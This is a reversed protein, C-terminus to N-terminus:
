GRIEGYIGGQTQAEAGNDGYWTITTAAGEGWENWSLFHRGVGPFGLYSAAQFENTGGSEGRGRLGSFTTTSDVGVGVAADNGSTANVYTVRIWAKVAGESVGQVYDLQNAASANAQRITATNYSWSDTAELAQMPRLVRHYYNWLYRKALSDETQGSVGTTRFSCLYRRTTDGSKIYVGDQKALATARTTDNTWATTDCAVAGSNIRCFLDYITATTSPVTVTIESATLHRWVTGTYLAMRNGSHPTVYVSTAATVDATTVSTGSTLTCRFDQVSPSLPEYALGDAQASDATLVYGDTGAAKRQATAGTSVLLDGKTTLTKFFIAARTNWLLGSSENSDAELLKGDSGVGLRSALGTAGGVLLDGKTTIPDAYTGSTTLDVWEIGTGAANVRAYKGVSLDDILISTTTSKKKFTPARLLKERVEQLQMVAKDFDKELRTAPFPENPTYSSAQSAPQKRLLTVKTASAPATTFTVSGGGSDGLGSVSYDSDVTKVTDDVLVEIDTKVLIRFTYAFVTTSGNGTYRNASVVENVTGQVSPVPVLLAGALVALVAAGALMHKLTRM